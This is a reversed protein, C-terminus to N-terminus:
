RKIGNFKYVINGNQGEGSYSDASITDMEKNKLNADVFLNLNKNVTLNNFSHEKIMGNVMNITADDIKTNGGFWTGNAGIQVTGAYLNVQGTYGRMDENLVITGNAKLTDTSNNINLVSSDNESTIRDNFIIQANEDAFLNIIGKNDHIANSVGNAKNGTFEMKGKSVLNLTSNENYIAGGSSVAINNTFAVNEATITMTSDYYNYIAGGDDESRNSSFTINDATITM